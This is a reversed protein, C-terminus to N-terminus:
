YSRGQYPKNADPNFMTTTTTETEVKPEVKKPNLNARGSYPQNPDIQPLMPLTTTSTDTSTKADSPLMSGPQPQMIKGLGFKKRLEEKQKETFGGGKDIFEAMAAKDMGGDINSPADVSSKTEAINKTYASMLKGYPSDKGYTREYQKRDEMQQLGAHALQAFQNRASLAENYAQQYQAMGIEMDTRLVNGYNALNQQRKQVDSSLIKLAANQMDGGLGTLAALVSGASGSGGVANRISQIGVQYNSMMTKNALAREEPTLGENQMDRMKQVYKKWARPVEYEPLEKSAGIAGILVRGLDMGIDLAAGMDFEPKKAASTTQDTTTTVTTVQTLTKPVITQEKPITVETPKIPEIKEPNPLREKTPEVTTTDTTTNSGGSKEQQYEGGYKEWAKKTFDGYKGDVGAPGLEKDYGKKKAWEQFERVGKQDKLESPPAYVKGKPKVGAKNTTTSAATTKAAARNTTAPTQKGSVESEYKDAAKKAAEKEQEITQYPIGKQKGDKTTGFEASSEKKTAQAVKEPQPTENEKPASQRSVRRAVDVSSEKDNGYIPVGQVSSVPNRNNEYGSVTYTVSLYNGKGENIEKMNITEYLYRVGSYGSEPKLDELGTVKTTYKHYDGGMEKKVYIAEIDYEKVIEGDANIHVARRKAGDAEGSNYYWVKNGYKDHDLFTMVSANKLKTEGGKAFAFAAKGKMDPHTALEKYVYEGLGRKDGKKFLSLMKQNAGKDFIREGYSVEGVKKGSRKDIMAIDEGADNEMLLGGMEYKKCSGGKGKRIKGGKKYYITEADDAMNAGSGANMLTGISQAGGQIGSQILQPNGTAAGGAIKAVNFMTMAKAVRNDFDDNINETTDRAGTQKAIKKAARNAVVAHGPMLWSSIKGWTNQQGTANYGLLSLAIKHRRDTVYDPAGFFQSSPLTETFTAM